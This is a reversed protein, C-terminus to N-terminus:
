DSKKIQFGVRPFHVVVRGAREDEREIAVEDNSLGVIRGKVPDQAYDTPTVTVEAGAAFPQGSEVSTTARSTAGRAVAIADVSGM